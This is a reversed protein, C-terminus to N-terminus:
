FNVMKPLFDFMKQTSLKSFKSSHVPVESFEPVNKVYEPVKPVKPKPKSM